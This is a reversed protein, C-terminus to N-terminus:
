TWGGYGYGMGQLNSNITSKNQSLGYGMDAIGSGTDQSFQMMGSNLM